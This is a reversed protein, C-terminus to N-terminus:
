QGATIAGGIKVAAPPPSHRVHRVTTFSIRSYMLMSYFPATTGSGIRVSVSCICVAKTLTHECTASTSGAATCSQLFMTSYQPASIQHWMADPEYTSSFEFFGYPISREARTM